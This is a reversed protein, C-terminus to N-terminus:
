IKVYDKLRLYLAAAAFSKALEPIIFPLFYVSLVESPASPATFSLLIFAYLAGIILLMVGSVFLLLFLHLFTKAKNKCVGIVIVMPIFGLIYGFTHNFIYGFGGGQTFLPVGALGASIYIGACFFARKAGLFCGTLMVAATQLTFPVSLVYIKILSSVYILATFMAIYILDKANFKM